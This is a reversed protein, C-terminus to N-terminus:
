ASSPFQYNMYAQLRGILRHINKLKCLTYVIKFFYTVATYNKYEKIQQKM